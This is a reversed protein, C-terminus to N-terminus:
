KFLDNYIDIYNKVYKININKLFDEPMLIIESRNEDPIYITKINGNIASILKEKVGGVSIIKGNLTIEGTFAIDRSIQKELLISLIASTISVGASPGDKKTSASLFHIHLDYDDIKSFYNNKIYTSVVSVSEDMIKGTNGTITIEGRGKSKVVEINGLIGGFDNCALVNAVGIFNEEQYFNDTLVLPEKLINKIYEVDLKEIKNIIVKRIVKHLIKDLNRVGAEYTYNQIIYSIVELDVNIKPVNYEDFIAPLLYKAAINVKEYFAYSEINIIELRDRLVYSIDYENNATLIFMIESLDFPEEIYHDTFKKNQESDLIDLLVSAPDGKYDKVLKDVEDILIVPNNVGCKKIADIIKGYSSGMYTRRSGVLELSDNLGGVSIKFFERNLSQAIKNAITTKGVGPPGVLCIVPSKVNPSIKKIDVYDCIREKIENMAYHSTNLYSKIIDSNLFEESKNNWPLNLVTDLYNYIVFSESSESPSNKFKNIENKFKEKINNDVSIKRLLRNFRKVDASKSNEEGLEEKLTNIKEKLIFNQESKLLKNKVKDEIRNELKIIEIEEEIFEILSQARIIPNIMQMYELKKEVSFKLQKAIMDTILDLDDSDNIFNLIENSLNSNLAIYNKTSKVLKRLVAKKETQDFKPFKLHMTDSYLLEDNELYGYNKVIVRKDGVLTVRMNGNPLVFKSKIIAIVGIKPLDEFSPESEKQSLPAVVLLKDEYKAAAEDIIKKTIDNNIEIKIEQNPIIILSKLLIVLYKNKM